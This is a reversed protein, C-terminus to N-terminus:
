IHVSQTIQNGTINLCVARNEGPRRRLGGDGSIDQGKLRRVAIDPDSM